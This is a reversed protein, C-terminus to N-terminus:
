GAVSEFFIKSFNWPSVTNIATRFPAYKADPPDKIYEDYDNLDDVHIRLLFRYFIM